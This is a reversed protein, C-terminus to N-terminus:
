STIIIAHVEACIVGKPRYENSVLSFLCVTYIYIYINLIFTKILNKCDHLQQNTSM